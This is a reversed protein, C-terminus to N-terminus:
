VYLEKIWEVLQENIQQSKSPERKLWKYYSSRGIHLKTCVKDIPYKETKNLNQIAIYLDEQRVGSVL